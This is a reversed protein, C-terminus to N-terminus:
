MLRTNYITNGKVKDMISKEGPSLIVKCTCSLWFWIQSWSYPFSSHKFLTNCQGHCHNQKLRQPSQWCHKQTGLSLFFAKQNTRLCPRSTKQIEQSPYTSFCLQVHHYTCLISVSNTKGKVPYNLSNFLFSIWSIQHFHNSLLFLLYFQPKSFNTVTQSIIIIIKIMGPPNWMTRFMFRSLCASILLYFNTKGSPWFKKVTNGQWKRWGWYEKLSLLLETSKFSNVQHLLGEGWTGGRSVETQCKFPLISEKTTSRKSQETTFDPLAFVESYWLAQM